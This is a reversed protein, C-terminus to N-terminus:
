YLDTYITFTKSEEDYFDKKKMPKTFAFDDNM